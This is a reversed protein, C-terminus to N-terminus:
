KKKGALFLTRINRCTDFLNENQVRTPDFRVLRFVVELAAGIGFVSIVTGIGVKAGLIWGILLASGELLIRVVGVPLKPLKRCLAVMLADRPGCGYAADMYFFSGIAVVFLGAIMCVIGSVLGAMQPVLEFRNFLSVFAGILLADGVTGWGIKEGALIDILIIAIAVANHVIGYDVGTLNSLGIDFAWWPSLGINAQVTLYSGISFLFLGFVLELTKTGYESM